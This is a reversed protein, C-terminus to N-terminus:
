KINQVSKNVKLAEAIAKSGEPGLNNNWLSCFVLFCYLFFILVLSGRHIRNLITPFKFNQIRVRYEAREQESEPSGCDGQGRRFRSRQVRHQLMGLLLVFIINSFTIWPPYTEPIHFTLFISNHIRVQHEAREHESEPSGCDCQRRRSRARELRPQLIDYVLVFLFNSFPIWAPYAEPIHFLQCM